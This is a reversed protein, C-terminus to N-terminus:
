VLDSEIETYVVPVVMKPAPEPQARYWHLACALNFGIFAAFTYRFASAM